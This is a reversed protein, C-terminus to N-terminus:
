NIPALEADTIGNSSTDFSINADSFSYYIVSGFSLSTINFFYESLVLANNLFPKLSSFTGSSNLNM